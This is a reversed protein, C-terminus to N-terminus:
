NFKVKKKCRPCIDPHCGVNKYGCSSTQLGNKSVWLCVKSQDLFTADIGLHFGCDCEMVELSVEGNEISTLRKM